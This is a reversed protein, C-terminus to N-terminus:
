VKFIGSNSASYSSKSSSNNVVPLRGCSLIAQLLILVCNIVILPPCCMVFLKIMDMFTLKQEVQTYGDSKQPIWHIMRNFINAATSTQNYYNVALGFLTLWFGFVGVWLLITMYNTFDVLDKWEFDHASDIEHRITTLQELNFTADHSEASITVGNAGASTQADTPPDASPDTSAVAGQPMIAPTTIPGDMPLLTQLLRRNNDKPQLNSIPRGFTSLLRRTYQSTSSQISTLTFGDKDYQTAKVEFFYTEDRKLKSLSMAVQDVSNLPLGTQSHRPANMWTCKHLNAEQTIDNDYEDTSYVVKRTMAQRYPFTTGSDPTFEYARQGKCTCVGAAQGAQAHPFIHTLEIASVADNSDVVAEPLTVVEKNKECNGHVAEAIPTTAGHDIMLMDEITPDLAVAISGVSLTHGTSDVIGNLLLTKKAQVSMYELGEAVVFEEWKLRECSLKPVTTVTQAPTVICTSDESCGAVNRAWNAYPSHTADLMLNQWSCLPAGVVNTSIGPLHCFEKIRCLRVQGISTTMTAELASGEQFGLSATLMGNIPYNVYPDTATIQLTNQDRWADLEAFTPAQGNVAELRRHDHNKYFRLLKEFEVEYTIDTPSEVFAIATSVELWDPLLQCNTSADPAALDNENTCEWLRVRFNFDTSKAIDASCTAFADAIPATHAVGDWPRLFVCGTQFTIATRTVGSETYAAQASLPQVNSAAASYCNSADVQVNAVDALGFYSQFSSGSIQNPVSRLDLNVVYEMKKLYQEQGAFETTTPCNHEPGITADCDSLSPCTEYQMSQVYIADKPTNTSLGSLAYVDNSVVLSYQTDTCLPSYKVFSTDDKRTATLHTTSMHFSYVTNGASDLTTSVVSNGQRDKCSKLKEISTAFKASFAQTGLDANGRSEITSASYTWKAAPTAFERPKTFLTNTGSATVNTEDFGFLDNGLATYEAETPQLSNSGFLAAFMQANDLSTDFNSSDLFDCDGFATTDSTGSGHVPNHAGGEHRNWFELLTQGPSEPQCGGLAVSVLTKEQDGSYYRNAVDIELRGDASNWVPAGFHAEIVSVDRDLYTNDQAFTEDDQVRLSVCSLTDISTCTDTNAGSQLSMPLKDNEICLSPKRSLNIVNADDKTKFIMYPLKQWTAATSQSTAGPCTFANRAGDQDTSVTWMLRRPVNTGCYTERETPSSFYNAPEDNVDDYCYIAETTATAVDTRSLTSMVDCTLSAGGAGSSIRSIEANTPCSIDYLNNIKSWPNSSDQLQTFFRFTSQSWTAWPTSGEDERLTSCVHLKFQRDDCKFTGDSAACSSHETETIPIFSGDLGADWSLPSSKSSEVDPSFGAFSIRFPAKIQPDPPLVSLTETFERAKESTSLPNRDVDLGCTIESDKLETGAENTYVVKEVNFKLVKDGGENCSSAPGLAQFSIRFFQFPVDDSADGETYDCNYYFCSGSVDNCTKCEDGSSVSPFDIPIMNPTVGDGAVM